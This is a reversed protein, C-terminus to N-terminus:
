EKPDISPVSANIRNFIKVAENVIVERALRTGVKCRGQAIISAAITAIANVANQRLQEAERDKM